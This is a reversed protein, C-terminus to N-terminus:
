LIRLPVRKRGWPQAPLGDPSFAGPIREGCKGCADGKLKYAGIEYWDREILLKGCSPCWTSGGDADHVNGTYVFRVGAERAIRRARALTAAPTNGKDTM